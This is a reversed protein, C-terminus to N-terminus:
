TLIAFIAMQILIDIITTFFIVITLVILFMRFMKLRWTSSASKSIAAAPDTMLGEKQMGKTIRGPFVM